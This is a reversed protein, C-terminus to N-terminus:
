TTGFASGPNLLLANAIWRARTNGSYITGEVKTRSSFIGVVTFPFSSRAANGGASDSVGSVAGESVIPFNIVLADLFPLAGPLLHKADLVCVDGRGVSQFYFEDLNPLLNQANCVDADLVIKEM